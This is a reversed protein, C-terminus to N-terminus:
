AAPLFLREEEIMINAFTRVSQIDDKEQCTSLIQVFIRVKIQSSKQGFNERELELKQAQGIWVVLHWIIIISYSSDRCSPFSQDIM